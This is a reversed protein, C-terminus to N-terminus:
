HIKRVISVQGVQIKICVWARYVNGRQDNFTRNKETHCTGRNTLKILEMELFSLWDSGRGRSHEHVNQTYGTQYAQRFSHLLHRASYM